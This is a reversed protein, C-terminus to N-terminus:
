FSVVLSAMTTTDTDKYGPVPENDYRFLVTLRLATTESLSAQLSTESTARWDSSQDFNPYLVLREGFSSTESFTYVYTAGLLGGFFDSTPGDVVDESTWTLGGDVGLNHDDGEVLQYAAGAEVIGRLNYGAFRDREASLGGFATWEGSLAREGRAAFTYREATTEDNTAAKIAVASIKLGWEDFTNKYDGTFGFSTSDSNGSNTVFSLGLNLVRDDDAAALSAGAVLFAVALDIVVGTRKTM